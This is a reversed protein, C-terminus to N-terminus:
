QNASWFWDSQKARYETVGEDMTQSVIYFIFQNQMGHGAGQFPYDLKGDADVKTDLGTVLSPDPGLARKRM